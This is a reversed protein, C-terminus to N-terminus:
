GPFYTFATTVESFFSAAGQCLIKAAEQPLLGRCYL